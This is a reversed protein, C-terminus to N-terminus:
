KVAKWQKVMQKHGKISQGYTSYRNCDLESMNKKSPFVMTEFLIPAGRLGYNYDLGLFVTSVWKGNPLTEQKVIRDKGKTEFWKAWEMLSVVYVRKGKLIYHKNTM